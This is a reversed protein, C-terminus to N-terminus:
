QERKKLLVAESAATDEGQVEPTLCVWLYFIGMVLLAIPEPRRLVLTQLQAGFDATTTHLFNALTAFSALPIVGAFLIGVVTVLFAIKGLRGPRSWLICCAPIALMVLRADWPRHYTILLEFATGAVVAFWAKYPAFRMRLTWIAWILTLTGGILYGAINYFRPDDRFVSIASQLDVVTYASSGTVSHPGPNNIGGPASIAALNANWEHLWDPAIHGVWLVASLCLVAAVLASQLARRRYAGGALLFYLWIFGADHPKIALSLGLCVVGLRVLRNEIFCWVAIGCLAVALGAANGAAFIDECNVALICALFTAVQPQYRTGVNWILVIALIFACGTALMWLIHAPGWPLVALPAVVVFISPVNVCLVIAEIFEPTDPPRQGDESMYERTLEGISYPNHHHILCRSAAYISRFDNWAIKGHGIAVGWIISIAISLLVWLLGNRYASTVCGKYRNFLLAM